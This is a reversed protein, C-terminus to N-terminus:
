SIALRVGSVAGNLDTCIAAVSDVCERGDAPSIEGHNDWGGGLLRPMKGSLMAAALGVLPLVSFSEAIHGYIASVRKAAGGRRIATAEARDIWTGCASSLINAPAKLEELVWGLSDIVATRDGSCAATADIRGRARGGRSQMSQRSELIFIVAGAGVVFGTEAAFPACGEIAGVGCHRYASNVLESFEEGAGVIARQWQGTRIRAAALAIADLGATRSGIVSQCASKLSLMLSLQAAGANPVSEAFLMPNAAIVGDRIIQRYYDTSYNVSGHLTGLVAACDAAFAPVDDIGADRCALTAAALTLKVYDSMRRVRRANLLALLEADPVGGSNANWAPAAASSLRSLLADNGIMGPLVVGIGTVFVEEQSQPAPIGTPPEAPGLIVCANAGGFGLSMNLSRRIKGPRSQGTALLLGDFEVDEPTVNACAPVVQDRLAMASLILEVAGAGGLTHGLHTKFAVVPIAPLRDAFVRSLAAFEGADNDPTGTAHAAILDVDAPQLEAQALAQRIARVAGDGQPHPQTLHHADASEGWGLIAALPEITRRAADEARELVVVGYGEAIKMGQRNKSFARLPGDAVLRLSNFGAWVYESIPDYGGAVVLDARGDQLLTVGLAISALSSSCASCTTASWGSIISNQLASRMTAAALFQRLEALDGNRLYRGAARMGHLTTGLLCVCRRPQVSAPEVRADGIAQNIAWRLYRAERPLEPAFDGPLDPAQGGDKGPPLPTEIASMPGMACRGRRVSEWTQERSLGLGTALGAGSIVIRPRSQSM